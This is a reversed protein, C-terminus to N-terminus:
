DVFGAAILRETLASIAARCDVPRLGKTDETVTASIKDSRSTPHHLLEDSVAQDAARNAENTLAKQLSDLLVNVMGSVALKDVTSVDAAKQSVKNFYTSSINAASMANMM